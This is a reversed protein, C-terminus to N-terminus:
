KSSNTLLQSGVKLPLPLLIILTATEDPDFKMNNNGSLRDDVSYKGFKFAPSNLLLSFDSSWNEGSSDSISISFIVSHQDLVLTDAIFSFAAPITLSDGADIRGWTKVTDLLTIFKDNSSLSAKVNRAEGTGINKLNIDLFVKEGFNV